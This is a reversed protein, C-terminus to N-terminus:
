IFITNDSSCSAHPNEVGRVPVQAVPQPPDIPCAVQTGRDFAHRSDALVLLDVHKEDRAIQEALQRLRLREAFRDPVPLLDEALKELAAPGDEGEGAIVIVLAEALRQHGRHGERCRGDALRAFQNRGAPEVKGGLGGEQM